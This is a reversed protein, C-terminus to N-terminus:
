IIFHHGGPLYSVMWLLTATTAEKTGGAIRKYLLVGYLFQEQDVITPILSENVAIDCFPKWYYQWKKNLHKILKDVDIQLSKKMEHYAERSM